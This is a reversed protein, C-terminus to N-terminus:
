IQKYQKFQDFLICILSLEDQSWSYLHTYNDDNDIPFITQQKEKKKYIYIKNQESKRLKSWLIYPICLSLNIQNIRHQVKEISYKNPFNLACM